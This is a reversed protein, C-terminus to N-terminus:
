TSGLEDSLRRWQAQQGRGLCEVKGQSRLEKLVSRIWDVSVGPCHQQLDAVRFPNAAARIAALVLGM